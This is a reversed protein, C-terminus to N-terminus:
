LSDVDCWPTEEVGYQTRAHTDVPLSSALNAVPDRIRAHDVWEFRSERHRGMRDGHGEDSGVSCVLIALSERGSGGEGM